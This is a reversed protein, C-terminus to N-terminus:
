VNLAVLEPVACPHQPPTSSTSPTATAPPSPTGPETAAAKALKPCVAIVVLDASQDASGGLGSLDSFYHPWPLGPATWTVRGAAFDYGWAEGGQGSDLGLAVGGRVVYMRASGGVTSGSVQTKVVGTLPDAGVLVGTSSTLYVLNAAPDAGEPVAGRMSWLTGGTSGSYATVGAASTFLVAGGAAVSMTGAFAHGPPSDLTRETGSNLDIVRLGTIPASGLYGGPSEALYLTGGDARWTQNASVKRRWLVTGTGNDYSTVSRPGLIVSATVSATVAGGFLAAPYRRLVTGAVSDIVVETRFRGSASAIGATVVGPWARLSVVADGAPGALTLQWLLRGDRLDYGVVTLGYGVVAVGGGVAVYAQGGAPVTGTAGGGAVWQGPLRSVWREANAPQSRCGHCAPAQQGSAAGPVPAFAVALLAVALVGRRILAPSRRAVKRKRKM